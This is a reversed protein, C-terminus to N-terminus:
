LLKHMLNPVLFARPKFRLQEMTSIGVHTVRFYNMARGLHSIIQEGREM